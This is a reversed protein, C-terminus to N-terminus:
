PVACVVSTRLPAGLGAVIQFVRVDLRFRLLSGAAIQERLRFRVITCSLLSSFLSDEALSLILIFAAVRFSARM